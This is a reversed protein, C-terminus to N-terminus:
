KDRAQFTNYSDLAEFLLGKPTDRTHIYTDRERERERKGAKEREREREGERGIERKRERERARQCERGPKRERTRRRTKEGLRTEPGVLANLTYIFPIYHFIVYSHSIM